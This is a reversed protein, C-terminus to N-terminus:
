FEKGGRGVRLQGFFPSGARDQLWILAAILAFLWSFLTLALAAIVIDILRKIFFNWGKIAHEKMGMLPIGSVTDIDLRGLSMEYLDPVLRFQVGDRRCHDVIRMIEDHSTSPLAIVVQAIGEQHIVRDLVDPTGLCRFRGFDTDGETTLFGA